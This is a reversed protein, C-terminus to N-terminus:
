EQIVQWPGYEEERAITPYSVLGPVRDLWVLVRVSDQLFTAAWILVRPNLALKITVDLELLTVAPLCFRFDFGSISEPDPVGYEDRKVDQM